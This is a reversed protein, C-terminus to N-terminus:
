DEDMDMMPAFYSQITVYEMEITFEIPTNNQYAMCIDQNFPLM